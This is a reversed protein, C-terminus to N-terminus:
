TLTQIACCVFVELATAPDSENLKISQMSQVGQNYLHILKLFPIKVYGARKFLNYKAAILGADNWYDGTCSCFRIIEEIWNLLAAYVFLENGRQGYLYLFTTRYQKNAISELFETPEEDLNRGILSNRFYQDFCDGISLQLEASLEVAQKGLLMAEQTSDTHEKLFEIIPEPLGQKKLLSTAQEGTVPPIVVVQNKYADLVAQSPEGKKTYLLLTPFTVNMYKHSPKKLGPDWDTVVYVPKAGILRPQKGSELSEKFTLKGGHAKVFLDIYVPKLSSDPCFMVFFKPKSQLCELFEKVNM